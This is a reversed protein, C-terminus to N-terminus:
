QDRERVAMGTELLHTGLAIVRTDPPLDAAIRATEADMDLLEVRVLRARGNDIVWVQPGHGRENIAGVPVELVGGADGPADLAVRVVSGLRLGPDGDGLVYRATWTRTAPDAAGAVERLTLAAASGDARLVRGAQPVGLREPLFVEVELPGDEALVAVPSGAAVVQGPEGSVEILVGARPAELRTYDLANGAQALRARAAEVRERASREALQVREFVQESIFERALLDRNRRTEAEATALEAEAADLDARAVALQHRFDRPDLEFLVEGAAVRRGADARREAIRGGVQFAIPTEYRARVTGSLRANRIDAPRVAVAKVWRPEAGTEAQDSSECAVLAVLAILVFLRPIM